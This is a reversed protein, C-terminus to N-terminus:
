ATDVTKSFFYAVKLPLAPSDSYQHYKRKMSRPLKTKLLISLKKPVVAPNM